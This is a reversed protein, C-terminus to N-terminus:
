RVVVARKNVAVCTKVLTVVNKVEMASNKAQCRAQNGKQGLPNSWM